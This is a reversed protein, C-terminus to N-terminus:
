AVNPTYPVGESLSLVEHSLPVPRDHPTEAAHQLNAKFAIDFRRERSTPDLEDVIQIFLLSLLM